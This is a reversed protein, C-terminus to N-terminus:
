FSAALGATQASEVPRHELEALRESFTQQMDAMAKAQAAVQTMLQTSQERLDKIEADKAKMQSAMQNNLAEMQNNLEQVAVLSVGAIDVESIHTDDTGNLGFAAHFDQAMPGVHRKEPANTYHWSSIPLEGLRALVDKGDIPQIDSKLNRDSTYVTSGVTLQGSVQVDGAFQGALGAGGYSSGYVGIGGGSDYGYVGIGNTSGGFVGYGHNATSEGSIANNPSVAKIAFVNNVNGEAYIVSDGTASLAYVAYNSNSSAFVGYGADAYGGVGSGNSSSKGYVGWGNSGNFGSVAATQKTSTTTAPVYGYVGTTSGDGEVGVGHGTSALSQGYVAPYNSNKNTITGYVAPGQGNTTAFVGAQLSNANNVQFNGGPGATGKNVGSVGAGSGVTDGYVTSNADKSNTISATLARNTGSDTLSMAPSTGSYTLTVPGTLTQGGSTAAPTPAASFVGTSAFGANPSSTASPEELPVPPPSNQPIEFPAPRPPVALPRLPKLADDPAALALSGTTAGVLAATAAWLAIRTASTM